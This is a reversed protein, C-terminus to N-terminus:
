RCMGVRRSSSSSSSSGLKHQLYKVSYDCTFRHFGVNKPVVSGDHYVTKVVLLRDDLVTMLEDRRVGCSCPLREPRTGDRVPFLLTSHKEWLLFGEGGKSVFHRSFFDKTVNEVLVVLDHYYCRRDTMECRKEIMKERNARLTKSSDIHRQLSDMRKDLRLGRQDCYCSSGRVFGVFDLFYATGYSGPELSTSALEVSRGGDIFKVRKRSTNYILSLYTYFFYPSV